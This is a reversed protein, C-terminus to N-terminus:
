KSWKEIFARDCGQKKLKDARSERDTKGEYNRPAVLPRVPDPSDIYTDTSEVTPLIVIRDSM